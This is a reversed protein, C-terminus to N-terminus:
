IKNIKGGNKRVMLKRKQWLANQRLRKMAAHRACYYSVAKRGCVPCRGKKQQRLQYRRRRDPVNRFKDQIPIPSAM